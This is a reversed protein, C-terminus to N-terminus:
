PTVARVEAEKEGLYVVGTEESLAALVQQKSRGGAESGREPCTM